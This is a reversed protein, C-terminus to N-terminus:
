DANLQTTTCVFDTLDNFYEISVSAIKAFMAPDPIDEKVPYVTNNAKFAVSYSSRSNKLDTTAGLVGSVICDVCMVVKLDFLNVLIDAPARCCFCGLHTESCSSKKSQSM